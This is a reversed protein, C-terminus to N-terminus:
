PTRRARLSSAIASRAKRLTNEAEKREEIQKSLEATRRQVTTELGAYARHLEEEARRVQRVQSALRRGACVIGCVGVAWLAAYGIAGRLAATRAAEEFEFLPVSVSIGGRIDGLKHNEARHCKICSAEAILPQM